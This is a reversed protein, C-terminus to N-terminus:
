PKITKDLVVEKMLNKMIKNTNREQEEESCNGIAQTSLHIYEDNKRSNLDEYEPNEEQWKLLQRLNMNSIKNVAHKLKSKDSNEKEWSDKDRVYITERKIDTCHIPRKHVELQRLGNAIIRTIGDVYGLRGTELLDSVQLKLSDVFDMINIADKCTENLFFQINFQQNNNTTSQHIVTQNKALEIIQQKHEMNQQQIMMRYEENQKILFNQIETSRKMFEVIFGNSINAPTLAPEPASGSTEQSPPPPITLTINDKQSESCKKTHKWLNNKSSYEKNCSPCVIKPKETMLHKKTTLHIEYNSKKSATFDCKECYYPPSEANEPMKKREEDNSIVRRKHRETGMHKQYDYYRSTVYDCSDCLYNQTKSSSNEPIIETDM